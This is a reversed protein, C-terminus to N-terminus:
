MCLLAPVYGAADGTAGLVRLSGDEIGAVLKDEDALLRSAVYGDMLPLPCAVRGLRRTAAVAASLAEVSGLEFWGLNAGVGWLAALDGTPASTAEGWHEATAGTVADAFALTEDQTTTM